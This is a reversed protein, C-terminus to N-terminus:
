KAVVDFNISPGILTIERQIPNRDFVFHSEYTYSGPPLSVPLWVTFDRVQCGPTGYLPVVPLQHVQRGVLFREVYVQKNGDLCYDRHIAMGTGPHIVQNPALSESNLIMPSARDWFYWYGGLASGALMFVCTVFAFIHACLHIKQREEKIQLM